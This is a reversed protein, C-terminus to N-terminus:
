GEGSGTGHYFRSKLYQQIGFRTLVGIAAAAPVAILMGVFGFLTAFAFLAFMLWVPHLGVSEGILKPQLINGELFQGAAFIAVVALIMLIQDPWFQAIAVGGALLLGVSAGIYPIFSIVGISLGILLGYDLGVVALTVAYFMGLITSVTVQGRVFGSVGRDMEAALRRITEAHDRPLWSDVMEIIDDWDWLLYFAVVPTVVLLSLISLVAQGGSWLSNLLRGLWAAGQQVIEGVNDQVNFENLNLARGFPSSLLGVVKSQVWRVAGPLEGLLATIQQGVIPAVLFLAVLFAILTVVLITLTAWFRSLGIKELRDAVPDLLYAIAMGAVFPLLISRFVYLFLIVGAIALIWFSLQRQVSM